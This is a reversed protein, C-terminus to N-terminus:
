GGRPDIGNTEGQRFAMRYVTPGFLKEDDMSRAAMAASGDDRSEDRRIDRGEDAGCDVFVRPTGTLFLRRRVPLNAPQLGFSYKRGRGAMYHAEDFVCLELPTAAARAGEALDPLSDYTSLVLVPEDRHQALFDAISEANCTFTVSTDACDSGVVLVKLRGSALAPSFVRYAALTQDILPLTPMVVISAAGVCMAAEVAWMGILTKGTGPPLVVTARSAADESEGKGAGPAPPIGAIGGAPPARAFHRWVANLAERQHPRASQPPRPLALLPSVQYHPPSPAPTVIIPSLVAARVAPTRRPVQLALSLLVVIVMLSHHQIGCRIQSELVKSQHGERAM